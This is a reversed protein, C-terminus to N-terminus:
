DRMEVDEPSRERYESTLKGPSRSRSRKRKRDRPPQIEVDEMDEDEEEIEEAGEEQEEDEEDEGADAGGTGGAAQEAAAKAVPGLKEGAPKETFPKGKAQAQMRKKDLDGQEDDGYLTAYGWLRWGLIEFYRPAARTGTPPLALGLSVCDSCGAGQACPRGGQNFDGFTMLGALGYKLDSIDRHGETLPDVLQAVFAYPDQGDAVSDVRWSGPFSQHIEISEQYLQPDRKSLSERLQKTAIGYVGKKLKPFENEWAEILKSPAGTRTDRYPGHVAQSFKQFKLNRLASATKETHIGYHEVGCVARHLENRGCDESRPDKQPNEVLHLDVTTAHRIAEPKVYPYRWAFSRAARDMRELLDPTSPFLKQTARIVRANVAAVSVAQLQSSAGRPSAAHHLRMTIYGGLVGAMASQIIAMPRASRHEFRNNDSTLNVPVKAAVM